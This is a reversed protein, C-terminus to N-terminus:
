QLLLVSWYTRRLMVMDRLLETGQCHSTGIVIIEPKLKVETSSVLMPKALLIAVHHGGIAWITRCLCRLVLAKFFNNTDPIVYQGYQRVVGLIRQTM